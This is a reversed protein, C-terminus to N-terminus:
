SDLPSVIEMIHSMAVHTYIQTTELKAHGLLAQIYRIDTGAELLHTAFSHRLTHPSVTRGIEAREAAQAVVKQITGQTLKGGRENNTFLFDDGVKLSKQKILIPLITKPLQVFRDKAGKGRVIHITERNFDIDRMKLHTLESVRMGTGYLLQIMTKHKPNVTLDIMQRVEEKSLVTPLKKEKKTRPISAFFKRRLIKEFYFQLASYVTNLTSSSYNKDALYELYNRVDAGHIEKPNKRTYELCKTIYQTYSEITSRSFGKLKMEQRLLIMPDRSPRYHSNM